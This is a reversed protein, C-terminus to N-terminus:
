SLFLSFCLSFGGGPKVYFFLQEKEVNFKDAGFTIPNKGSRNNVRGVCETFNPKSKKQYEQLCM